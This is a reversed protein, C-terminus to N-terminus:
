ITYFEPEMATFTCLREFGLEKLRERVFPFQEAVQEPRHADSGLTLITGGMERYLRLIDESPTLDGIRYRFCSTNVEIGKGREIVHALIKEVFPQSEKFPWIGNKDYRRIMDLHGLVSYGDYRRIVSLIEKYYGENYERQTKGKQYAQNDFELDNVQHCSLIVFDFPQGKFDQEYLPATHTQVGFEIGYKLRIKGKYAERCRMLERRYAEYDCNNERSRVGYDVHETFCMEEVGARVAAQVQEEMATRSDWSFDSHVHYDALM